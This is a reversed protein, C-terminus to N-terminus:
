RGLPSRSPNCVEGDEWHLIPLRELARPGAEPACWNFWSIDPGILQDVAQDAGRLVGPDVARDGVRVVARDM